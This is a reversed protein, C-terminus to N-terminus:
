LLIEISPQYTSLETSIQRMIKYLDSARVPTSLPVLRIILSITDQSMEKIPTFSEDFRFPSGSVMEKITEIIENINLYDRIKITLKIHVSPIYEKIMSNLLVSNTVYIKNGYVDELISNFPQIDVLRGRLPNNFNPLYVEIWTGRAYRQLQLAIFATFEKIEYYFLILVLLGVMIIIIYPALSATIFHVSVMVIIVLVLIDLIRTMMMKTGASILGRRMLTSLFWAILYRILIAVGIFLAINILTGITLGAPLFLGEFLNRAM